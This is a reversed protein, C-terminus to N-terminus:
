EAVTNHLEGPETISKWGQVEGDEALIPIGVGALSGLKLRSLTTRIRQFQRKSKERIKVQQVAKAQDANASAEKALDALFEECKQKEKLYQQDLKKWTTRLKDKILSTNDSRWTVEGLEGM